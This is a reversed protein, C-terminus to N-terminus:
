VHLRVHDQAAAAPGSGRIELLRRRLGGVDAVVLHGLVDAPDAAVDHGLRGAAQARDADVLAAALRLDALVGAARSQGRVLDDLHGVDHDHTGVGHRCRDSLRMMYVPNWSSMSRLARGTSSTARRWRAASSEAGGRSPPATSPATSPRGTAAM